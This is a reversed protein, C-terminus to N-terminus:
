DLPDSFLLFPCRLNKMMWYGEFGEAPRYGSFYVALPPKFDGPSLFLQNGRTKTM